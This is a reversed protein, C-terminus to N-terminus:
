RSFRWIWPVLNLPNLSKEDIIGRIGRYHCPCREIESLALSSEAPKRKGAGDGENRWRRRKKEDNIGQPRYRPSEINLYKCVNGMWDTANHIQLCWRTTDYRSMRRFQLLYRIISAPWKAYHVAHWALQLQRYMRYCMTAEGFNSIDSQIRDRTQRDSKIVVKVAKVFSISCCSAVITRGHEINCHDKNSENCHIRKNSLPNQCYCLISYRTAIWFIM